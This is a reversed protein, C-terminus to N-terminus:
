CGNCAPRARRTWLSGYKQCERLMALGTLSLMGGVLTLLTPIEGLWVWAIVTSLVPVAFLTASASSATWAGLVYSWTLYAVAAPFVGLYVVTGLEVMSAQAIADGLGRSFLLLLATGAWISYAAFPLAGYKPIFRKQLIFYVSQGFAAALVLLVGPEFTVGDAAGASILVVGFVSTSLGLWAGKAMHEGLAAAALLVTFVPVMNAVLSAAGASVTLEGSNLLLHYTTIGLAGTFVIAPVDRLDPLRISSARAWVMLVSSAVLFRLLALHAPSFGELGVRIGPFASSWLILTVALALGVRGGHPISPLTKIYRYM